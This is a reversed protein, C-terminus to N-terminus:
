LFLLAIIVFIFFVGYLFAQKFFNMLPITYYKDFFNPEKDMNYREKKSVTTKKKLDHNLKGRLLFLEIALYLSPLIPHQPAVDQPMLEMEYGQIINIEKHESEISIRMHDSLYSIVIDMDNLRYRFGNFSTQEDTDTNVCLGPCSERENCVSSAYYFFEEFTPVRM